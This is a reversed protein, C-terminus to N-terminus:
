KALGFHWWRDGSVEFADVEEVNSRVQKKTAWEVGSMVLVNM